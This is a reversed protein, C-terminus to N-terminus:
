FTPRWRPVGAFPDEPLPEVPKSPSPSRRRHANDKPDLQYDRHAPDDGAIHGPGGCSSCTFRAGDVQREAIDTTMALEVYRRCARCVVWIPGDAWRVARFTGPTYPCSRAGM